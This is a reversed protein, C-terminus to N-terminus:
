RKRKTATPKNAATPAAPVPLGANRMAKEIEQVQPGYVAPRTEALKRYVGLWHGARESPENMGWSGRRMIFRGGGIEVSPLEAM